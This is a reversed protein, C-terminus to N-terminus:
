GRRARTAPFAGPEEGPPSGCCAQAVTVTTQADRGRGAAGKCVFGAIVSELLRGGAGVLDFRGDSRLWEQILGGVAAIYVTAAETASWAGDLEGSGKANAFISVLTRHMLDEADCRRTMAGQMEGVYECRLMLITMVRRTREDRRIFDLAEITHAHLEQLTREPRGEMPLFFEEQPLRARSQMALFLELKNEFHWYIAGRTLGAAQAIQTLTTTAVGREFFLTEAADLIAERTRQADEKTRRM